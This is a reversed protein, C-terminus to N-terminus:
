GGAKRGFGRRLCEACLAENVPRSFRIAKIDAVSFEGNNTACTIYLTRGDGTENRVHHWVSHLYMKRKIWIEIM